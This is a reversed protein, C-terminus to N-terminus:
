TASPIRLSYKVYHGNYDVSDSTSDPTMHITAPFNLTNNDGMFVETIMMMHYTGASDFTQKGVNLSYPSGSGVGMSLEVTFGNGTGLCIVDFDMRITATDGLILGATNWEFQSSTTNWIGGRGPIKYALNTDSGAGNNLIKSAAGSTMAIAADTSVYDEFGHSYKTSALATITTEATGVRTALASVATNTAADVAVLEAFNNDLETHTLASGKVLRKVIAM